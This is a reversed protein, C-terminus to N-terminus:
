FMWKIPEQKPQAPKEEHQFIEGKLWFPPLLLQSLDASDGTYTETTEQCPAYHYSKQETANTCTENECNM